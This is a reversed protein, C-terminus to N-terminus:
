RIQIAPIGIFASRGAAPRSLACKGSLPTASSGQDWRLRCFASGSKSGGNRVLRRQLGHQWLSLAGIRSAELDYDSLKLRKGIGSIVARGGPHICFHQFALTFNPIYPDVKM